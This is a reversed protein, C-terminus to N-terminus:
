LNQFAPVITRFDQKRLGDVEGAAKLFEPCRYSLDEQMLFNMTGRLSDLMYAHRESIKGELIRKESRELVSQLYELARSKLTRPLIQIRYFEPYHLDILKPIPTVFSFNEGLYDYLEGLTFINYIQVTCMVEVSTVGYLEHNKELDRLNKDTTAWKSGHRIYENVKGFGDISSWLKVEKFNPWLKKLEAPIRTLNTNYTLSIHKSDGNEICVKLLSLMEPIILPEGGAFHLHELYQTVRSFHERVEKSQYWDPSKACKEPGNALRYDRSLKDWDKSWRSSSVSNCMRCALNCLNGLRFDMSKINLPISGDAETQEILQPIDASYRFNESERRSLGQTDETIKCRKCVEPWEGELMQLRIKKLTVSNMIASEDGCDPAKMVKGNKDRINNDYEESSCCVQIEGGINTFRHIWPLVCFTKPTPKECKSM